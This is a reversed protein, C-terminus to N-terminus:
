GVLRRDHVRVLVDEQDEWFFLKSGPRVHHPDCARVFASALSAPTINELCVGQGFKAVTEILGPYNNTIVPKKLAIYEYLKNSACYFNNLNINSYFATGIDCSNMYRLIEANPVAEHLFVRQQLGARRIREKITKDYGKFARGLLVLVFRADCLTMSDVLEEVHRKTAVMGTQLIIKQDAKIPYVRRFLDEKKDPIDSRRPFNELLRVEEVQPYKTKFYAIRNKEPMIIRDCYGIYRKEIKDWVAERIGGMSEPMLEHADFVVKAGTKKKAWAGSLLTSLDHCHIHTPALRRLIAAAQRNFQIRSLFNMTPNSWLTIPIYHVPIGLDEGGSATKKFDSVVLEIQHGAATLTQIEKRVRGDYRIDGLLVMVIRAMLAELKSNGPIFRRGRWGNTGGTDIATFNREEAL